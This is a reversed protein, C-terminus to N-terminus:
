LWHFSMCYKKNIEEVDFISLFWKYNFLFLFCVHKAIPSQSFLKCDMRVISYETIAIWFIFYFNLTKKKLKM